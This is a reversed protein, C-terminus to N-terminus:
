SGAGSQLSEFFNSGRSRAPSCALLRGRRGKPAFRVPAPQPSIVHQRYSSGREERERLREVERVEIGSNSEIAAM